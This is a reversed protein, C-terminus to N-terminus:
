KAQLIWTSLTLADADSVAAQPPMPIAGWKGTSGKKINTALQSASTSGDKYKDRISVWSPGVVKKDMQHCGVCAHRQALQENAVVSLSTLLAALSVVLKTTFGM